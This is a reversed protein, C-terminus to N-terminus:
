VHDQDEEAGQVEFQCVKHAELSQTNAEDVSVFVSFGLFFQFFM